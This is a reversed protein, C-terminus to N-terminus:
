WFGRWAQDVLFHLLGASYDRQAKKNEPLSRNISYPACLFLRGTVIATM